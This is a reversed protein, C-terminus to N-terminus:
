LGRFPHAAITQEPRFSPALCGDIFLSRQIHLADPPARKMLQRLLLRRKGRIESSDSKMEQHKLGVPRGLDDECGARVGEQREHELDVSKNEM